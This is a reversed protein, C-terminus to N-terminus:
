RPFVCTSPCGDGDYTNGDDCDEPGNVIGDGCYGGTLVLPASCDATCRVCSPTGYACQTETIQNGDDCAEGHSVIGDGCRRGTLVLPVDCSASCRMCSPTGYPCETETIRNGDDCAENGNVIGDGCFPGRAPGYTCSPTCVVCDM